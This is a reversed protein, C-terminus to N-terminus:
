VGVFGPHCAKMREILEVRMKTQYDNLGGPYVRYHFLTENVVDVEWKKELISLWLDWDEWGYGWYGGADRVAERKVLSTVPLTNAVLQQRLTRRTAEVIDEIAGFRHMDTSVIGTCGKMVPVTKALFEPEIWDDGGLPLILEGNSVGIGANLAPGSSHNVQGQNKQQILTVPWQTAVYASNDTSGDDVVIIEKDEYVQALASEICEDLYQAQNYVPIIISVKM